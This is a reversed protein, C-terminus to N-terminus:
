DENTHGGLEQRVAAEVRAEIDRNSTQEQSQATVAELLVRMPERQQEPLKELRAKIEAQLKM